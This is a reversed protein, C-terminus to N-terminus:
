PQVLLFFFLFYFMSDDALESMHEKFKEGTNVGDKGTRPGTSCAHM